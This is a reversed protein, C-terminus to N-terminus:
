KSKPPKTLKWYTEADFVAAKTEEGTSGNVLDWIVCDPDAGNAVPTGSASLMDDPSAGDAYASWVIFIIGTDDSPLVAGFFSEYASGRSSLPADFLGVATNDRDICVLAEFEFPDSGDFPKVLQRPSDIVARTQLQGYDHPDCRENSENWNGEAIFTLREPVPAGQVSSGILDWIDCEPDVTSPGAMVPSVSARVFDEPRAPRNLPPLLVLLATPIEESISYNLTAGVPTLEIEDGNRFRLTVQGDAQNGCVLVSADFIAIEEGVTVLQSQAVYKMAPPAAASTSGYGVIGAIALCLTVTSRWYDAMRMFM